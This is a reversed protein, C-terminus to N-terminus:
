GNVRSSVGVNEFNLTDESDSNEWRRANVYFEKALDPYFDDGVMCFRRIGFRNFTDTLELGCKHLLRFDFVKSYSTRIKSLVKYLPASQLDVFKHDDFEDEFPVNHKKKSKKSSPSILPRQSSSPRKEGRSSEGRKTNGKEQAVKSHIKMAIKPAM